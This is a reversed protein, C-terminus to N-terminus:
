PNAHVVRVDMRQQMDVNRPIRLEATGRRDIRGLQFLQDGLRIEVACGQWRAAAQANCRFILYQDGPDGPIHENSVSWEGSRSRRQLPRDTAGESAALLFLTEAVVVRGRPALVESRPLVPLPRGVPGALWDQLGQLAKANPAAAEVDAGLSAAFADAYDELWTVVRALLAAHWPAPHPAGPPLSPEGLFASGLVDLVEDDPDRMVRTLSEPQPPWVLWEVEDGAGSLVDRMQVYAAALPSDSASFLLRPRLDLMRGHSLWARFEDMTLGQASRLRPLDPAILYQFSATRAHLAALEVGELLYVCPRYPENM